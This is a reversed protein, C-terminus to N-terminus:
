SAEKCSPCKFKSLDLHFEPDEVMPEACEPCLPDYKVNLKCLGSSNILTIMFERIDLLVEFRLLERMEKAAASQAMFRDKLQKRTKM